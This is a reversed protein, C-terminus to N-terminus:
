ETPKVDGALAGDIAKQAENANPVVEDATPPAVPTEGVNPVSPTVPTTPNEQPVEQPVEGVVPPTEPQSVPTQDAGAGAGPLGRDTIPQGGTVPTQGVPQDNTQQTDMSVRRESFNAKQEIIPTQYDSTSVFEEFGTAEPNYINYFIKILEPTQLPRLTLGIRSFQRILHDRKPFLSTKAKEIILEIPFPLGKKTKPVVSGLGMELSSFPIVIYFKKDLVQKERVTKEVFSWYSRIQKKLKEGVVKREQRALLNLYNSVDKHQSRVIIQIPFSLSNLLSAYAFITADQENESLLDFNVATTQCVLCCSGDKLIVLNDKIEEIDLHDQTSARIPAQAPTM